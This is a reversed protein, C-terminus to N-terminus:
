DNEARRERGSRAEQGLSVVRRRAVPFPLLAFQDAEQEAFHQWRAFAQGAVAARDPREHHFHAYLLARGISRDFALRARGPRNRSDSARYAPILHFSWRTELAAM